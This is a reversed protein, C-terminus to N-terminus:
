NAFAPLIVQFAYLLSQEPASHAFMNGCLASGRNTTNKNDSCVEAPDGVTKEHLVVASTTFHSTSYNHHILATTTHTVQASHFSFVICM